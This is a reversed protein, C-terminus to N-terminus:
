RVWLGALRCVEFATALPVQFRSSIKAVAYSGDDVEIALNSGTPYFSATVAKWEVPAGNRVISGTLHPTEKYLDM